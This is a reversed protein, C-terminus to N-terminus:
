PSTLRTAEDRYQEYLDLGWEVAEDGPLRAFVALHGDDTLVAVGVPPSLEEAVFLRVPIERDTVYVEGGEVIDSFANPACRKLLEVDATEVVVNITMEGSDLKRALVDLKEASVITPFGRVRDAARVWDFLTELPAYPNDTMDVIDADVLARSPPHHESPLSRLLPKADYLRASVRSTYCLLRALQEGLPTLEYGEDTRRVVDYEILETAWNYVTSKSVGMERALTPKYKPGDRLMEVLEEAKAMTRILDDTSPGSPTVGKERPGREEFM